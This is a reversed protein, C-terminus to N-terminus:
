RIGRQSILFDGRLSSEKLEDKMAPMIRNRVFNEDIPQETKINMELNVSVNTGSSSNGQNASQLAQLGLAGVGTRNVVFEGPQLLSPTGDGSSFGGVLGGTQGRLIGAQHSMMKTLSEKIHKMIQDFPNLGALGGTVQNIAGTVNGKSLDGVVGGGGGVSISVGGGGGVKKGGVSFQRAVRGHALDLAIQKLIPDETISRPIVVEGPSLLAAVRDNDPNDGRFPSNGPVIGGKAFNVFPVNVGLIREVDGKGSKDGAKSFLKSLLNHPALSKFISTFMAKIGNSPNNILSKLGNFISAGFGTFVKGLGSLKSSFGTFVSGGLNTFTKVLNKASSVVGDIIKKGMGNLKDLIPDFAEPLIKKLTNTFFDVVGSFADTVNGKLINKFFDIVTSFADMVIQNYSRFLDVVPKFANSVIGVFDETFFQIIPRFVNDIISSFVDTFFSIIPMFVENVIVSFATGFFELIDRFAKSVIGGLTKFFKIVKDWIKKLQKLLKAFWGLRDKWVDDLMGTLKQLKDEPSFGKAADGFDQVAFLKSAEGTVKSFTATFGEAISAGVNEFQETPLKINGFIGNVARMLGKAIGRVLAIAIRPVMKIFAVVIKELGGGILFDIFSGVIEGMAGMLGTIMSEIIDPLAAFLRQLIEPIEQLLQSIIKPLAEFIADILEPLKDLFAGIVESMADILPGLFEPLRQMFQILGDMMATVLQPATEAITQVILPIAELIGSIIQPAADVLKRVVQDFKNFAQVMMEPLKLLVNGIKDALGSINSPSLFDMVSSFAGSIAGGVEGLVNLTTQGWAPLFNWLAKGAEEFSRSIPDAGFKKIDEFFQKGFAEAQPSKKSKEAGAKLLKERRKLQEEVEATLLGEARLQERKTDLIQLDLNLKRNIQEEQTSGINSVAVGLANNAEMMQKALGVQKELQTTQLKKLDVNAKEILLSEQIKLQKEVEKTLLKQKDLQERKINLANMEGALRIGIKEADTANVQAIQMTLGLNQSEIEKLKTSIADLEKKSLALQTNVKGQSDALGDTSDAAEDIAPPIEGFLDKVFGVAKAFNGDKLNNSVRDFSQEVTEITEVEQKKLELLAKSSKQVQNYAGEVAKDSALGVSNMSVVLDFVAQDIDNFMGIFFAKFKIWHNTITGTVVVMVDDLHEVNAILFDIAVAVAAISGGIIAFKVAAIGAAVGMSILAPIMAVVSGLFAKMAGFKIVGFFVTLTGAAALTGKMFNDWNISQVQEKMFNLRERVMNVTDQFSVFADSLFMVVEPLNIFEAVVQGIEEQLDGFNNDMSTIAGALTQAEAAAFGAFKKGAVDLAAGAKLEEISLDKFESGLKGLLGISGAMTQLLGRFSTSVEKDTAAALDVSTKVLKKAEENSLGQAKAMSLLQLTAEDGQTTVSQLGSAFQKFDKFAANTFQGLTKLTNALQQEQKDQEIFLKTADKIPGALAGYAKKALELAQNIETFSIMLSKNSKELTENAKSTKTETSALESLSGELKKISSAAEGADVGIKVLLEETVALSM